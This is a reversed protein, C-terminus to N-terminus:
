KWASVVRSECLHVSRKKKNSRIRSENKSRGQMPWVFIFVSCVTYRISLTLEIISSCTTFYIINLYILVENFIKGTLKLYMHVHKFTLSHLGVVEQLGRGFQVVVTSHLMYFRTNCSSSMM